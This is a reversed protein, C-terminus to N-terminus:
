IKLMKKNLILLAVDKTTDTFLLHSNIQAKITEYETLNENSIDILIEDNQDLFKDGDRFLCHSATFVYVKENFNEQYYLVGSGIYDNNVTKLRVTIKSIIKDLATEIM